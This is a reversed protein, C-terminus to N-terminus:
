KKFTDRLEGIKKYNFRKAYEQVNIKEFCFGTEDYIGLCGNIQMFIRRGSDGCGKSCAIDGSKFQYKPNEKVIKVEDVGLRKAVEGVTLELMEKGKVIGYKKNRIEILKNLMNIAAQEFQSSTGEFLADNCKRWLSCSGCSELPCAACNMRDRKCLACYGEKIYKRDTVGKIVNQKWHEISCDLASLESVKAREEVQKLTLLDKAPLWNKLFEEAEQKTKWYNDIVLQCNKTLTGDKILWYGTFFKEDDEVAIYFGNRNYGVKFKM